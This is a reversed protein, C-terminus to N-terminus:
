ENGENDNGMAIQYAQRREPVENLPLGTMVDQQQGPDTETVNGDSDEHARGISHPRARKDAPETVMALHDVHLVEGMEVQCFEGWYPEGAIHDCTGYDDECITCTRTKTIMSPSSFVMEPFIIREITRLRTIYESVALKESTEHAREAAKAINQAKVLEDWARDYLEEKLHIWMRLERRLSDIVCEFCLILNAVNEDGKRVAEQKQTVSEHALATLHRWTDTQLDRNCPLNAHEQAQNVVEVGRRIFQVTDRNM